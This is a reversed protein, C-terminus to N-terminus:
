FTTTKSRKQSSRHKRRLLRPRILFDSKGVRGHEKAGQDPLYYSLIREREEETLFFLARQINAKTVYGVAGRDEVERRAQLLDAKLSEPTHPNDILAKLAAPMTREDPWLM